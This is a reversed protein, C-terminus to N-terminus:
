LQVTFIAQIVVCYVKNAMSQSKMSIVTIQMFWGKVSNFSHLYNIKMDTSRKKEEKANVHQFEEIQMGEKANIHYNKIPLLTIFHTTVSMSSLNKILCSHKEKATIAKHRIEQLTELLIVMYRDM